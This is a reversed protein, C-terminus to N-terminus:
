STKTEMNTPKCYTLHSRDLSLYLKGSRPTQYLATNTNNMSYSPSDRCSHGFCVTVCKGFRLSMSWRSCWCLFLVDTDSQFDFSDSLNHIVKSIKTYDTFLYVFSKYISSPIDNIYILFLLPGLVSRQPVGSIVSLTSSSSNEVFVFQNRNSLYDKFWHWLPGQLGLMWLKYCNTTHFLILHRKQLWLLYCRYLEQQRHSPLYTGFVKSISVIHLSGRWFWIPPSM